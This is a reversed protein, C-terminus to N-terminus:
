IVYHLKIGNVSAMHHSFTMNDIQFSNGSLQQQQGQAMATHNQNLVLPFAFLTGTTIIVMLLFTATIHRSSNLTSKDKSVM